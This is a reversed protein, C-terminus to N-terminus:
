RWCHPIDPTDSPLREEDLDAPDHPSSNLHLLYADGGGLAQFGHWVGPPIQVLAPCEAAIRWTVLEGITPSESRADYLAVSIEGQVLAIQDFQRRHRYWAKVVGPRTCTVYAQAFGPFHEDDARQVELLHGRDNVVKKLPILRAGEITGTPVRNM